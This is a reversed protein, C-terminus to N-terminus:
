DKLGRCILTFIGASVNSYVTQLLVLVEQSAHTTGSHLHVMCEHVVLVAQPALKLLADLLLVAKLPHIGKDGAHIGLKNYTSSCLMHCFDSLSLMVHLNQGARYDLRRLARDVNQDCALVM